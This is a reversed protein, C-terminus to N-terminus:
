VNELEGGLLRKLIFGATRNGRGAARKYWKIAEEMDVQVTDSGKEYLRGLRYCASDDGAKGAERYLRAGAAEDKAVGEGSLLM